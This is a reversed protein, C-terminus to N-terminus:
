SARLRRLQILLRRRALRALRLRHPRRAIGKKGALSKVRIGGRETSEAAAAVVAAAARAEVRAVARHQRARSARAGGTEIETHPM